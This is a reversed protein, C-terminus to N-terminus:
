RSDYFVVEKTKLKNLKLNNATALEAARSDANVAPVVLYTDDSRVERIQQKRPTAPTADATASIYSRNRLYSWKVNIWSPQPRWRPNTRVPFLSILDATGSFGVKSCFMFHIPDGTASIHGNAYTPPMHFGWKSPFPLDYPTLSPVMLFLSPPKM